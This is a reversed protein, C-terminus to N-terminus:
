PEQVVARRVRRASSEMIHRVVANLKPSDGSKIALRLQSINLMSEEALSASLEPAPEVFPTDSRATLVLFATQTLVVQDLGDQNM